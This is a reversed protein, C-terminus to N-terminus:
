IIFESLLSARRLLLVKHGKREKKGAKKTRKQWKTVSIPVNLATKIIYL